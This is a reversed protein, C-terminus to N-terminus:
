PQVSTVQGSEDLPLRIFFTTGKSIETQFELQGGHKDVVISRAIALGQGTGRGVEKTTFFPDFIRDRAEEPIGGGTDSIAIVVEDGEQRTTVRVIGKIQTGAVIDAIAHAANVVINLVAQNIEGAHCVVPPLDGFDTELEAVYKYENRAITLTSAVCRNLDVAAKESQDPHAFEKMSRVITAVRSTGDLARDLAKPMEELLYSLDLINELAAIESVDDGLDARHGAKECFGRYREILSILDKMGDRVFHVSDSVFQVPTNIEHGVGAALRGVSELKQGQRLQLDLTEREREAKKRDRIDRYIASLGVFTGFGDYIPSLIVSVEIPVGGKAVRVSEFRRTAEVEAARAVTTKLDQSRQELPFLVSVPKGIVEDSTYGFLREAGLNWSRILGATDSGVISDDSSEVISALYARSSEALKSATCDQAIGIIRQARGQADTFPFTRVAIWRIEGDSRVIRYEARAPESAPIELWIGIVRQRDDAHISEIWTSPEAYATECKYGWIKEYASSVFYPTLDGPNRWFFVEDIHQVLSEACDRFGDAASDNRSTREFAGNETIMRGDEM